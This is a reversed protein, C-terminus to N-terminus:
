TKSNPTSKMRGQAARLWVYASMLINSGSPGFRKMLQKHLDDNAAGPEGTSYGLPFSGVMPHILVKLLEYFVHLINREHARTLKKLNHTSIKTNCSIECNEFEQFTILKRM